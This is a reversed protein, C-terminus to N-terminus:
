WCAPNIRLWPGGCDAAISMLGFLAILIVWKGQKAIKSTM